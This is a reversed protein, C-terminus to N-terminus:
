FPYILLAKFYFIKKKYNVFNNIKMLDNNKCTLSLNDVQFLKNTKLM